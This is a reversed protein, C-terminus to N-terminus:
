LDDDSLEDEKGESIAVLAKAISLALSMDTQGDNENKETGKDTDKEAAEARKKHL